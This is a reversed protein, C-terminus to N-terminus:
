VSGESLRVTSRQPKAVKPATQFPFGKGGRHRNTPPGTKEGMRRGKVLRPPFNKKKKKGGMKEGGKRRALGPFFATNREGRKKEQRLRTVNGGNKKEGKGKEGKM